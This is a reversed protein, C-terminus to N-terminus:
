PDIRTTASPLDDSSGAPGQTVDLTTVATTATM